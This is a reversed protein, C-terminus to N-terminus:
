TKGKTFHKGENYVTGDKTLVMFPWEDFTEFKSSQVLNVPKDLSLYNTGIPYRLQHVTDNNAGPFGGRYPIALENALQRFNTSAPFLVDIDNAKEYDKLASGVIACNWEWFHEFITTFEARMRMWGADTASSHGMTPGVTARTKACVYPEATIQGGGGM